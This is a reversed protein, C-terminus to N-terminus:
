RAVAALLLLAVAPVALPLLMALVTALLSNFSSVPQYLPWEHRAPYAADFDEQLALGTLPARKRTNHLRQELALLERIDYHLLTEDDLSQGSNVVLQRVRRATQTWRDSDTRLRAPVRLDQTVVM